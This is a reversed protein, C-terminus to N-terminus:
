KILENYLNGDKKKLDVREAYSMEDFQEKTIGGELTGNSKGVVKMRPNESKFLYSEKEQLTKIQKELDDKFSKSTKLEEVDLLSKVAKENRAGSKLIAKEIDFELKVQNLVEENESNAKEFKTKYEEAEKKITEIDLKKFKEIKDNAETIQGKLQENEKELVSNTSKLGEIALGNLKFVGTIQEESLGLELLEEKTM